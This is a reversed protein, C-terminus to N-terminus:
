RLCPPQTQPASSNLRSPPQQTCTRMSSLPRRRRRRRALRQVMHRHHMCSWTGPSTGSQTFGSSECEERAWQCRLRDGHAWVSMPEAVATPPIAGDTQCSHKAPVRPGYAELHLAGARHREDVFDRGAVDRKHLVRDECRARHRRAKVNITVEHVVTCAREQGSWNRVHSAAAVSHKSQLLTCELSWDFGLLAHRRRPPIPRLSLRRRSARRWYSPRM